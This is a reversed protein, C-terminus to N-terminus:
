IAEVAKKIEADNVSLVPINKNVDIIQSLDIQIPATANATLFQQRCAGKEYVNKSIRHSFIFRNLFLRM